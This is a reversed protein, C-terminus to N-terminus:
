CSCTLGGLWSSSSLLTQPDAYRPDNDNFFATYDAMTEMVMAKRDAASAVMHNFGVQVCFYVCVSM